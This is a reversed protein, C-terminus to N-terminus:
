INLMILLANLVELSLTISDRQPFMDKSMCISFIEWNMIKRKVENRKNENEVEFSKMKHLAFGIMKM